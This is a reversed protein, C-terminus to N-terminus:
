LLRDIRNGHQQMVVEGQGGQYVAHKVCNGTRIRYVCNGQHVWTVFSERSLCAQGTIARYVRAVMGSLM